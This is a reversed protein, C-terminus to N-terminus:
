CGAGAPASRRARRRRPQDAGQRPRLRRHVVAGGRQLRPRLGRPRGAAADLARARGDRRRVRQRRGAALVARRERAARASGAGADRSEALPRGARNAAVIAAQEAPRPRSTTRSRRSSRTRPTSSCRAHQPPARLRDDLDPQGVPRARLGLGSYHSPYLVLHDPLTLLRETLSRYLTRAMEEVTHEGHAHLDPRGADGVLLADGTLVLWPEDGRTHDTVVYAHHALAHGPRPSRRRDRHQRAHRGRRRRARSADFEVGAGTPCTPPRAPASRRARAARLRPRGARAHRAGRRDRAGQAEALAIYEDVLDVHPDVVAFAGHTKCGLLYSACATDDNLLQRFFVSTRRSLRADAQCAILHDISYCRIPDRSALLVRQELRDRQHALREGARTRSSSSSRSAWAGRLTSSSARALSCDVAFVEWCRCASCAAPMTVRARSPVCRASRARRRRPAAATAPAARRTPRAAPRPRARRARSGRRRRRRSRGRRASRAAACAAVDHEDVHARGLLVLGPVDLARARDRDVLELAPQGLQRGVALDHGVAAAREAGVGM